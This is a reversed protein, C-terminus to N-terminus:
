RQVYSNRIFTILGFEAHYQVFALGIGKGTDVHLQQDEFKGLYQTDEEDWQAKMSELYTILEGITTPTSKSAIQHANM